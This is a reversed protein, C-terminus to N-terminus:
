KLDRTTPDRPHQIGRLIMRNFHGSIKNIGDRPTGHHITTDRPTEHHGTTDGHDGTCVADRGFCATSSNRSHQTRHQHHTEHTSLKRGFSQHRPITRSHSIGGRPRFCIVPFPTGLVARKKEQKKECLCTDYWVVAVKEASPADHRARVLWMLCWFVVDFALRISPCPPTFCKPIAHRGKASYLSKTKWYIHM